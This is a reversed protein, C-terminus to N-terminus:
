IKYIIVLTNWENLDSEKYKIETSIIKGNEFIPETWELFFHRETKLSCVPKEILM